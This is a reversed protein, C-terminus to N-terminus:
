FGYISLDTVPDFVWGDASPYYYMECLGDRVTFTGAESGEDFAYGVFCKKTQNYFLPIFFTNLPRGEGNIYLYIQTTNYYENPYFYIDVNYIEGTRTSVDFNHGKFTLQFLKHGDAEIDAPGLEYSGFFTDFNSMFYTPDETRINGVPEFLEIIVDGEQTESETTESETLETTTETTETVAETQKTTPEEVPQEGGNSTSSCSCLISIAVGLCLLTAAIKKMKKM